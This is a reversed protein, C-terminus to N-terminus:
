RWFRSKQLRWLALSVATWAGTALVLVLKWNLLFNALWVTLAFFFLGITGLAAGRADLAAAERGRNTQLIGAKEKKKREHKEILTASAPFIAPFALFLGGVSPGYRKAVLGSVVTIVGGFFFRVAYEYWRTRAPGSLNVSVRMKAIELIGALSGVFNCVLYELSRDHNPGCAMATADFDRCM